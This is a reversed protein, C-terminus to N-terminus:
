RVNKHLSKDTYLILQIHKQLLLLRKKKKKPFTQNWPTTNKGTSKSLKTLTMGLLWLDKKSVVVEYILSM